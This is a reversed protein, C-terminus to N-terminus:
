DVDKLLHFAISAAKGPTTSKNELQERLSNAEDSPLRGILQDATKMIEARAMSITLTGALFKDFIPQALEDPLEGIEQEVSEKDIRADRLEESDEHRDDRSKEELAIDLGIRSGLTASRPEKRPQGRIRLEEAIAIWAQSKSVMSSSKVGFHKAIVNRGFLKRADKVAKEGRDKVAQALDRYREARDAKYKRIAGDLDDQTWSQKEAKPKPATKAPPGTGATASSGAAATSLFPKMLSEVVANCFERTLVPTTFRWREDHVGGSEVKELDGDAIAWCEVKAIGPLGSLLLTYMFEAWPTTFTETTLIVHPYQDDAVDLNTIYPSLIKELIKWSKCASLEKLDRRPRSALSRMLDGGASLYQPWAEGQVLVVGKGGLVWEGLRWGQETCDVDLQDFLLDNLEDSPFIDGEASALQQISDSDDGIDLVTWGMGGRSIMM